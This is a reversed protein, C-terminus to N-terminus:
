KRWAKPRPRRARKGEARATMYRFVDEAAFYQGSTEMEKEAEIAEAIFADHREARATEQEIAQLMFAHASKGAAEAAADIRAKLDTPIKLSTAITPM